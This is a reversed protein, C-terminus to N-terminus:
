KVDEFYVEKYWIRMQMSHIRILLVPFFLPKILGQNKKVDLSWPWEFIFRNNLSYTHIYFRFFQVRLSFSSYINLFSLLSLILSSTLNFVRLRLLISSAFILFSGFLLLVCPVLTSFLYRLLRSSSSPFSSSILSLCCSVFLSPLAAQRLLLWAVSLLADGLLHSYPFPLGCKRSRTLQIEFQKKLPLKFDNIKALLADYVKKRCARMTTALSSSPYIWSNQM